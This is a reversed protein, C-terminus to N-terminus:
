GFHVQFRAKQPEPVSLLQVARGPVPDGDDCDCRNSSVGGIVLVLLVFM